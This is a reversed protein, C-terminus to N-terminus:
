LYEFSSNQEGNLVTPFVTIGDASRHQFCSFNIEQNIGQSGFSMNELPKLSSLIQNVSVYKCCSHPLFEFRQSLFGLLIITISDRDLHQKYTLIPKLNVPLNEM